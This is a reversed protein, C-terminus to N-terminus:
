NTTNGTQGYCMMGPAPESWYEAEAHMRTAARHNVARIHHWRVLVVTAAVLCGPCVALVALLVVIMFKRM